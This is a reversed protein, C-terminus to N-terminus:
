HTPGVDEFNLALFNLDIRPWRLWELDFAQICSVKSVSNPFSTPRWIGDCIWCPSTRTASRRTQPHFLSQFITYNSRRHGQFLRWTKWVLIIGWRQWHNTFDSLNHLIICILKVRCHPSVWVTIKFDDAIGNHRFNTCVAFNRILWVIYHLTIASLLTCFLWRETSASASAVPLM